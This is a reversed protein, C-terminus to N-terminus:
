LMYVIIEQWNNLKKIQCFRKGTESLNLAEWLDEDAFYKKRGDEVYNEKELLSKKMKTLDRNPVKWKKCVRELFGITHENNDIHTTSFYRRDVGGREEEKTQAAYAALSKKNPNNRTQASFHFKHENNRELKSAEIINEAQSNENTTNM